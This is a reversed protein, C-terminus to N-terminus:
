FKSHKSDKFELGFLSRKENNLIVTSFRVIEKEKLIPNNDLRKILFEFREGALAKTFINALQYDTKVFYLEVVENEVQKKIFYYHVDIHKTKEKLRPLWFVRKVMILHKKTPKAQYRACMCVAFVLDPSSATVYMLSGFIGQYRTPDVLTGNPDEDLKSQGVMSIDVVDYKEFGCKKLMKLAYKSQNIFICRPSQLIQLGLFFSIQGIMSMKFHKSILKAFKDCCIPNTSAFIIEDVYIQALILDNGKKRTFLTPDVVCKVFKQSLLFKSLLDYWARPPVGRGKLNQESIGDECGDLISGYEQTCQINLIDLRAKNKLVGGYEDLKVKFIWKLSIIMAKEPRPVLKWVELREFEHIEKQMAEIWCSEEMVEKYNKPEEKTNVIRSSSEASSTEPPDFPNTFTDNDFKAVEKNPKVNTSNIPLNTAEINPSNSPFPADKNISTSSSSVRATDSPLLTTTSIPTSIASPSKFYEDFMSQFLLDWDNKTPPKASTSVAQNLVLGIFIRIDAKPQLKGIDEFNNTPYCLAGFIYLYKLVPKRDRLLEYPTKNYYTHIQSRNQTYCATAVVKAWLFLSCKSFILITRAAEVLTCNRREVVGNQQPTRTTSTNHSIGVEETYNQLTQNLFETGNDIHLYRVTANLSVQAQKLFKIIIEPAEDKTRLFKVWTFRSYDDVIVLIYRKKNISEVRMPGCLDMHLMQLKEDTSPEPKHLHSEM